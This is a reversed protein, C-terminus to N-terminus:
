LEIGFEIAINNKHCYNAIAVYGKSEHETLDVGNYEKETLSYLYDLILDEM